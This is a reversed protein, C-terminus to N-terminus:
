VTEEFEPIPQQSAYMSTYLDARYVVESTGVLIHTEDDNPYKIYIDGDNEYADIDHETYWKICAVLKDKDLM